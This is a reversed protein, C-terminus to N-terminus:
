PTVIAVQNMAPWPDIIAESRLGRADKGLIKKRSWTFQLRNKKQDVTTRLSPVM